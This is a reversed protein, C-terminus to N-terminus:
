AVSTEADTPKRLLGFRNKGYSKFIRGKSANKRLVSAVNAKGRIIEYENKLIVLFQDVHLWPQGSKELVVRCCQTITKTESSSPENENNQYVLSDQQQRSEASINEPFIQSKGLLESINKNKAEETLGWLAGNREFIGKKAYYRLMSRVKEYLNTKEVDAESKVLVECIAKVTAQEPSVLRLLQVLAAFMTLGNLADHSISLIKHSQSEILENSDETGEQNAMPTESSTEYRPNEQFSAAYGQSTVNEDLFPANNDPPPSPTNEILSDVFFASQELNQLIQKTNEILNNDNEIIRKQANVFDQAKEYVRDYRSLWIGLRRHLDAIIQRNNLMVELINDNM